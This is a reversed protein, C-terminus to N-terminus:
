RLADMPNLRAARRAPFYGAAITVLSLVSIALLGVPTSIHPVGMYEDWGMLPVIQFMALSIAIGLAGGIGSLLSSEALFSLLISNPRAGMAMKLGIERRREEVVANMINAVGIGGVILTMAAVIGMFIRFGGFFNTVFRLMDTTDWIGLADRDAPDFRYKEGLVQYVQDTTAAMLNPDVSQYIVVDLFKKRFVSACTSVPIIAKTDDRSGYSSDQLKKQMVGIVRFPTGQIDIHEGVANRDGFLEEKLENGLFVVRRRRAVDEPNIFRGGPQPFQSRMIGWEPTVGSVETKLPSGGPVRVNADFQYEPSISSIAPIRARLLEVDAERLNIVRGKGMGEFALTTKNGPWLVVTETLRRFEDESQNIM